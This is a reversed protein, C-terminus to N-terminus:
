WYEESEIIERERELVSEDVCTIRDDEVVAIKWNPCEFASSDSDSDERDPIDACSVVLALVSIVFIRRM